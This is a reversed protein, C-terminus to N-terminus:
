RRGVAVPSEFPNSVSVSADWRTGDEGSSVQVSTRDEHASGPVVTVQQWGFHARGVAASINRVASSLDLFVM